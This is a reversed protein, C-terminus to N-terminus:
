PTVDVVRRAGDLAALDAAGGDKQLSILSGGAMELLPLLPALGPSRVRDRPHQPSGKWALGIRPRPLGDLRAAWAAAEDKNPAIYPVDAPISALTMGFAGPLSMLPIHFDHSPLPDGRAVAQVVGDVSQMLRVLPAPCELVVHQGADRLRPLFRAF